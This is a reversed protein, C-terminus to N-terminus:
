CRRSRRAAPVRPFLVRLPTRQELLALRTQGDGTEFGLRALGSPLAAL